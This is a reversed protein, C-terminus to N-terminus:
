LRGKLFKAIGFNASGVTSGTTSDPKRRVMGSRKLGIARGEILQRRAVLTGSCANLAARNIEFGM